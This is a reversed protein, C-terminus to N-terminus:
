VRIDLRSSVGRDGSIQAAVAPSFQRESINDGANSSATSREQQRTSQSDDASNNSMSSSTGGGHGTGTGNMDIRVDM